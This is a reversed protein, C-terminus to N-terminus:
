LREIAENILPLPHRNKKTIENLARYDIDLRLKGCKNKVLMLPSARRTRVNRIWVLEQNQKLYDALYEFPNYSLPYQKKITVPKGEEEM